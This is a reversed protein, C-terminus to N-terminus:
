YKDPGSIRSTLVKQGCYLVDPPSVSGWFSFRLWNEHRLFHCHGPALYRIITLQEVLCAPTNVFQYVVLFANLASFLSFDCIKHCMQGSNVTM